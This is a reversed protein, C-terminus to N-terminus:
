SGNLVNPLAGNSHECKASRIEPADVGLIRVNMKSFLDPLKQEGYSFDELHCTDGDYCSPILASFGIRSSQNRRTM